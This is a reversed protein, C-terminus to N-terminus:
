QDEAPEKENHTIKLGTHAEIKALMQSLQERLFFLVVQEKDAKEVEETLTKKLKELDEPVPVGKQSLQQVSENVVKLQERKAKLEPQAPSKVVTNVVNLKEKCPLRRKRGPPGVAFSGLVHSGGIAACAIHRPKGTRQL